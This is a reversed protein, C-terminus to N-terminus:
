GLPTLTYHTTPSYRLLYTSLTIQAAYCLLLMDPTDVSNRHGDWELNLWTQTGIIEAHGRVYEVKQKMLSVVNTVLAPIAGRWINNLDIHGRPPVLALISGFAYEAMGNEDLSSSSLGEIVLGQAKKLVTHLTSPYDFTQTLNPWRTFITALIRWLRWSWWESSGTDSSLITLVNEVIQNVQETMALVTTESKIGNLICDLLTIGAYCKSSAGKGPKLSSQMGDFISHLVKSIQGSTLAMELKSAVMDLLKDDEWISESCSSILESSIHSSRTDQWSALQVQWIEIFGTLNRARIFAEVLPITINKLIAAYIKMEESSGALQSNKRVDIIGFTTARALLPTLLRGHLQPSRSASESQSPLILNGDNQM